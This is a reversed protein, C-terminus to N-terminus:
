PELIHAGCRPCNGTAVVLEVRGMAQADRIGDLLPQDCAPCDFRYRARLAKDRRWLVAASGLMVAWGGAFIWPATSEPWGLWEGVSLLIAASLLGGFGTAFLGWQGPRRSERLSAAALAGLDERRMAVLDDKPTESPVPLM